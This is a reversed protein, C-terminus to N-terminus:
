DAIEAHLITIWPYGPGLTTCAFHEDDSTPRAIITLALGTENFTSDLNFVQYRLGKLGTLNNIRGSDKTLFDVLPLKCDIGTGAVTVKFANALLEEGAKECSFLLSAIFVSLCAKM